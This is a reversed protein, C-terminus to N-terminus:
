GSCTTSTTNRRSRSWGRTITAYTAQVREAGEDAMMFNVYAGPMGYPHTATWYDRAWQTIKEKNEPDPDVGVIVEAFRADRNGVGYRRSEGQRRATSRISTCRRSCRRCQSGHEVHTAIAEDSLEQVFDAKWYWQHGPPYLADFM